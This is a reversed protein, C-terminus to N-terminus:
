LRKHALRFFFTETSGMCKGYCVHNVWGIFVGCSPCVGMYMVCAGCGDVCEDHQQPARVPPCRQMVVCTPTGASSDARARAHTNPHSTRKQNRADESVYACLTLPRAIPRAKSISISYFVTFTTRNSLLWCKMRSRFAAVRVRWAAVATCWLLPVVAM